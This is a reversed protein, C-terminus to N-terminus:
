KSETNKKLFTVSFFNLGAFLFAAIFFYAIPSSAISFQSSLDRILGFLLFLVAIILIMYFSDKLILVFGQKSFVSELHSLVMSNILLLAFLLEIEQMLTYDHASVLLRTILILGVSSILIIMLRQQVPIFFRFLYFFLSLSLLMVVLVLGTEFAVLSTPLLILIPTFALYVHQFNNGFSNQLM